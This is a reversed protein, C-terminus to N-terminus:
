SLFDAESTELEEASVLAMRLTPALYRATRHGYQLRWFLREPAPGEGRWNLKARGANLGRRGREYGFGVCCANLMTDREIHTQVADPIIIAMLALPNITTM